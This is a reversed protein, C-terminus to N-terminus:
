IINQRLRNQGTLNEERGNKVYYEIRDQKIENKECYLIRNHEIRM